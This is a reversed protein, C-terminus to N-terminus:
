EIWISENFTETNNTGTMGHDDYGIVKYAYSFGNRMSVDYFKGDILDDATIDKGIITEDPFPLNYQSAPRLGTEPDHVDSFKRVIDVRNYLIGLGLNEIEAKNEFISVTPTPRSLFGYRLFYNESDSYEIGYDDIVSLVITIGYDIFTGAPLLLTHKRNTSEITGSNYLSDGDLLRFARIHYASQSESNWTLVPRQGLRSHSTTTINAIRTEHRDGVIVELTSSFDSLENSNNAVTAIQFSVSTEGPQAWNTLRLSTEDGTIPFAVQGFSPPFWYLFPDNTTGTGRRLLYKHQQQGDYAPRFLWSIDLPETSRRTIRNNDIIYDIVWRPAYSVNDPPVWTPYTSTFVM